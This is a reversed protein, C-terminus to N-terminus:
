GDTGGETVPLRRMTSHTKHPPVTVRLRRGVLDPDLAAATITALDGTRIGTASVPVQLELQSMAWQTEGAEPSQAALARTQVRCKGDYVTTTDHTAVGTDPDTAETGDARTIICADVMLAEARRRGRQIEAAASM